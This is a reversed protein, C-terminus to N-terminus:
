VTFMERPMCDINVEAYLLCKSRCVTLM